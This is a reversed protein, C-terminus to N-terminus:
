IFNDKLTNKELFRYKVAKREKLRKIREKEAKLAKRTEWNLDEDTM